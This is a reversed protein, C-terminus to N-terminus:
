PRQNARESGGGDLNQAAFDWNVLHKLFAEVFAPRQNQYDLYYAHEWVDLTLIPRIDDHAVPCDGDHLSTVELRDGRLVLWAWGSAFHGEAEKAFAKAFAEHGGFDRGIREALAGSPPGGGGPAMCRWFFSHNWVQGAQSRLKDDGLAKARRVVEVLDDGALPTGAVLKNTTDVYAKHHKGHHFQLTRASVHPELADAAYPLPPLKFPM